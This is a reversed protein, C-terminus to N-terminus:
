SSSQKVLQYLKEIYQPQKNNLAYNQIFKYNTLYIFAKYIYIYLIYVYFFMCKVSMIHANQKKASFSYIYM